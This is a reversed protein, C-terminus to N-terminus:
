ARSGGRVARKLHGAVRRARRLVTTAADAAHQRPQPPPFQTRPAPGPLLAVPLRPHALVRTSIRLFPGDDVVRLAMRWPVRGLRKAPATVTLTSGGGEAPALTATRRFRREDHRFRVVRAGTPLEADDLHVVLHVLGDDRYALSRTEDVPISNAVM